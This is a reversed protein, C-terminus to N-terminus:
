RVDVCAIRRYDDEGYRAQRWGRMPWRAERRGHMKAKKM